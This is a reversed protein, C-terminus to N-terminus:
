QQVIHKPLFRLSFTNFAIMIEFFLLERLSDAVSIWKHSPSLPKKKVDVLILICKQAGDEDEEISKALAEKENKEVDKPNGLVGRKM